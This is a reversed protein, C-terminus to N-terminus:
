PTPIVTDAPAEWVPHFLVWQHPHARLRPLMQQALLTSIHRVDARLNGSSCIELERGICARTRGDPLRQPWIPVIPVNGRLALMAIGAPIRIAHRFGPLTVPVGNGQMDWDCAIGVGRGSRLARQVLPLVNSTLPLVEGGFHGREEVFFDFLWDPEVRETLVACRAGRVLIAHGAADVNGIHATAILVGRGRAQAALLHEMGPAETRTRMEEASLTTVALMDVYNRALMCFAGLAARRVRRHDEPLDLLGAMNHHATLRLSTASRYFLGGTVVALGM